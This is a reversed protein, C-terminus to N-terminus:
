FIGIQTAIMYALGCALIVIAIGIFFKLDLKALKSTASAHEIASWMISPNADHSVYRTFDSFSITEHIKIKPMKIKLKPPRGPKSEWEDPEEFQGFGLKKEAFTLKKKDDKELMEKGLRETFKALRPPITFCFDEDAIALYGKGFKFVSKPVTYFMGFRPNKYWGPSVRQTSPVLEIEGTKRLIIFNMNPKTFAKWWTRVMPPLLVKLIHTLLVALGFGFLLMMIAIEIMVKARWVIEFAKIEAHITTYVNPNAPRPNLL